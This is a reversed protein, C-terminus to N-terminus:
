SSFYYGITHFWNLVGKTKNRKVPLLPCAPGPFLKTETEATESPSHRGVLIASWLRPEAGASFCSHLCAPQCQHQFLM